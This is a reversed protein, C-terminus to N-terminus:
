VLHQTFITEIEQIKRIRTEIQKIYGQIKTDNNLVSLGNLVSSLRDSGGETVFTLKSIMYEDKLRLVDPINDGKTVVVIESVFSSREFALMTRAIVPIGSIRAFMKNIGGMRSSSGAAVIIVPVANDSPLQVESYEIKFETVAM